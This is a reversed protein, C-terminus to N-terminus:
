SATLQVVGATGDVTVTQGDAITATGSRTGVVAPMDHERAVIAAHSLASGYDTVVAAARPFLVTWAPTTLRCVLVDGPAVRDFETEDAVVRATATVRGPSGPQGALQDSDSSGSAPGFEIGMVWDFAGNLRQAEAPLDDMPPPPPPPDGYMPPGPNARVWAHEARRRAVRQRLDAPEAADPAALAARLEDLELWVADEPRRLRGRAVLRRGIELAAFRVLGNPMADTYLLNDERLGWVRTARHLADEFRAREAETADREGLIERARKVAHERQRALEDRTGLPDQVGAVLDRLLRLTREPREAFTAEGVDYAPVRCGYRDMHNALRDAVGPEAERLSALLSEAPQGPTWAMVADRADPHDRVQHALDALDSTPEASAESLGAVLALTASLDWGLLEECTTALDHAALVYPVFLKFHAVQGSELLDLCAQLHADLAGDDLATLDRRRLEDVEEVFAARWGGHWWREVLQAPQDSALAEVATAIRQSITEDSSAPVPQGYVEWGIARQRVAEVLFGFDAFAHAAGHELRPLYATAGLPSMPGTYHTTDKMWPGPPPDIEPPTPLATIPRAQLLHVQGDARAWEIDQPEGADAEVRDALAAIERAVAEDIAGEPCTVCVAEGARVVWEDSSAEGSVLRDGLGRVASVLTDDRAGTVPNATFAVGAADSEVLPQILVAMAAPATEADGYVAVRASRTSACCRRVAEAVEETGRAGLVTDYQGAYSAEALDEAVASSRVAVPRDGLATVAEAVAGALEAPLEASRVAEADAQAGGGSEVLRAVTETPVVVGPPVPLGAQRLAALRAAKGGTASAETARPDDLDVVAASAHRTASRAVAESDRTRTTSDSSM